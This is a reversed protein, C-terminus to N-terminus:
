EKPNSVGLVSSVGRPTRQSRPVGQALARALMADGVAMRLLLVIALPKWMVLLVAVAFIKWVM